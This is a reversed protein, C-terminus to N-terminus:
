LLIEHLGSAALNPNLSKWDSQFKVPVDAAISGIYRDFVLATRENYCGIERSRSKVIDQPLFEMRKTFLTWPMPPFHFGIKNPAMKFTQMIVDHCPISEVDSARQSPFEVTTCSNFEGWLPGTIHLTPTRKATLGLLSNFFFLLQTVRSKFCWPVRTVDSNISLKQIVINKKSMLGWNYIYM